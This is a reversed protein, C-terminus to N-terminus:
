GWGKTGRGWGWRNAYDRKHTELTGESTAAPREMECVNTELHHQHLFRDYGGEGLGYGLEAVVAGVRAEGEPGGLKRGEAQADVGAQVSFGGQQM